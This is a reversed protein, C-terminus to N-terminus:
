ECPVQLSETEVFRDIEIVRDRRMSKLLVSKAVVFLYSRPNLIHDVGALGSLIAYSEQVVDDIDPYALRTGLWRRL